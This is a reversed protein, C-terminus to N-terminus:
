TSLSALSGCMLELLSNTWMVSVSAEAIQGRGVAVGVIAVMSRDWVWFAGWVVGKGDMGGGDVVSLCRAGPCAGSSSFGDLEGDKVKLM